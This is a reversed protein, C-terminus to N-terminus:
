VLVLAAVEEISAGVEPGSGIAATPSTAPSLEPAKTVSQPSPERSSQDQIKTTLNSPQKGQQERERERDRDQGRRDGSFRGHTTVQFGAMSLRGPRTTKVSENDTQGDKNGSLQLRLNLEGVAHVM